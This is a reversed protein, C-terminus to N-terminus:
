PERPTDKTKPAPRLQLTTSVIEALQDNARDGPGFRQRLAARARPALETKVAWAGIAALGVLLVAMLLALIRAVRHKRLFFDRLMTIVVHAGATVILATVALHQTTPSVAITSGALLLLEFAYLLTRWHRWIPNGLGGPVALQVVGWLVAGLRGLWLAPRSGASRVQASEANEVVNTLMKGVIQLARALLPLVQTADLERRVEYRSQLHRYLEEDDLTAALVASMKADVQRGTQREVLQRITLAPDSSSGPLSLLTDVIMGQLTGLEQPRLHERVIALHAEKILAAAYESDRPLICGILREAGDLRGWLLDNNRWLRDFFAGFHFVATGALKRRSERREDIISPADVPSIRIVDVPEAEGVMTEYFVPFIVQDYFEYDQYYERLKGLLENAEDTNLAASSGLCLDTGKAADILVGRYREAIADAVRTVAAQAGVLYNRAAQRRTELTMGLLEYLWERQISLGQTAEHAFNQTGRRQAQEHLAGLSRAKSNLQAKLSRIEERADGSLHVCGDDLKGLLFSLRRRRYSLDFDLLFAMENGAVPGSGNKSEPYVMRRWEGIISRIARFEDSDERLNLARVVIGTLDDTVARVKLRHYSAYSPGREAVQDALRQTVYINGEQRGTSAQSRGARWAAVDEAVDGTVEKVREILRNRDLLQRLDERITEYQHLSVTAAFANEVFNPVTPAASSRADPTPEVYVLKRVMPLDTTRRALTEIAYSFPKNDLYGGDGFARTQFAGDCAALYDPFFSKVEDSDSMLQAPLRTRAAQDGRAANRRAVVADIDALRIPEFAFPFSSTARATFALFSNLDPSFDNREYEGQEGLACRLQFVNKHRREFVQKDALEIPLELGSIDTATVFIDLEPQLARGLPKSQDMTDLADILKEYMGRSSLLSQPATQAFARGDKGKDDNLLDKIEAQELWLKAIADLSGGNALAKALFIANIGGASTGSAIDIIFRTRLVSDPPGEPGLRAISALKRYVAETGTVQPFLLKGQEDVATARVLRLFEQTVGNIYIALSVGGYVVLAFRVEQEFDVSM